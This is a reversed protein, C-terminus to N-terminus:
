VSETLLLQFSLSPADFTHPVGNQPIKTQVKKYSLAKPTKLDLTQKWSGTGFDGLTSMAGLLGGGWREMTVCYSVM